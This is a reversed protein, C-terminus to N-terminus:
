RNGLSSKARAGQADFQGPAQMKRRVKDRAICSGSPKQAFAVVNKGFFPHWLQDCFRSIPFVFRDYLRVMSLNLNGSDDGLWKLALSALFGLSDVYETRKVVFGAARLVALLSVRTYRRLHGVKRDMPGYLMPFAPVYVIFLGGPTLRSYIARVAALDDEIHELVNFSYAGSASEPALDEIRSHTKLSRAILRKRLEPDPEVCVIEIGADTIMRALLGTGAGFDLVPVLGRANSVVLKSLFRNYREAKEMIDLNDIGDYFRNSTNNM